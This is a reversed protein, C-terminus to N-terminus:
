TNLYFMFRLYIEQNYMGITVKGWFIGQWVVPHVNCDILDEVHPKNDKVSWVEFKQHHEKHDRTIM